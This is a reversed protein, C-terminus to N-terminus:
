HPLYFSSTEHHWREVFANVMGWNVMNYGCQVLDKLGSLELFEDFWPEIPPVLRSIKRGHNIVKLTDREHDPYLPLLSLDSLGGGFAQPVAPTAQAPAREPAAEHARELAQSSQPTM